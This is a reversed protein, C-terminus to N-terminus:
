HFRVPSRKRTTLLMPDVGASRPAPWRSSVSMYDHMHQPNAHSKALRYIIYLLLLSKDILMIHSRVCRRRKKPPAKPSATAAVPAARKVKKTARIVPKAPPDRPKAGATANAQLKLKLQMMAAAQLQTHTHTHTHTHTNHTHQTYQTHTHTHTHPAVAIVFLMSQSCVRVQQQRLYERREQPTM